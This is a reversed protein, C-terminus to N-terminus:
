SQCSSFPSRGPIFCSERIVSLGAKCSGPAAGHFAMDALAHLPMDVDMVSCSSPSKLPCIGEWLEHSFAPSVLSCHTGAQWAEGAM